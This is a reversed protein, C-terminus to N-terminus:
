QNEELLEKILELCTSFGCGKDISFLYNRSCLTSVINKEVAVPIVSALERMRAKFEEAGVLSEIKEM